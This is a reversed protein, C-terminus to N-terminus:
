NVSRSIDYRRLGIGGILNFAVGAGVIGILLVWPGLREVVGEGLGLARSLLGLSFLVGALIVGAVIFLIVRLFLLLISRGMHHM